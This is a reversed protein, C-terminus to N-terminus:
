YQKITILTSPKVVKTSKNRPISNYKLLITFPTQKLRQKNTAVIHFYLQYKYITRIDPGQKTILVVQEEKYMIEYLVTNM